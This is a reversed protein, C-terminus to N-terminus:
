IKSDSALLRQHAVGMEGSIQTWLSGSGKTWSLKSWYIGMTGWMHSSAFFLKILVLLFDVVRKGSNWRAMSSGHLDGLNNLTACFAIKSNKGTFEIKHVDTQWLTEKHLFQL